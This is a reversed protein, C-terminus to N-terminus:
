RAKLYTDFWGFIEKLRRLRHRPKGSRSLSHNEGEFLCMRSPVGFYKMATFMQVGQDVTCNYDCLSHIFLIPTKANKAYKLPSQDWMKAADTWPDAGLEESDFTVGIESAGFDSVWNSISRQSALAAFRDTHGEIWNCMFGGYSGGAAGLRAPDIQPYLSLVHDTFEMLDRYDVTGYKGRLDGFAPGYGESGRPNCFFVAYGAGALAQMEHVFAPGYAGRPGGHIELVAPFRGGGSFGEPLLVWGDIRVGDSDTFPIYQAEAVRYTECFSKNAWTRQIAQGDELTYLEALRNDECGVLALRGQAADLWVACGTFGPVAQIKDAETLEYLGSRCGQQGIWYVKEGVAKLASGSGHLSDTVTGSGLACLGQAALRLEGSSLDYRYWDHFQGSGWTKMDTLALILTKDGLALGGVNWTNEPLLARTEGATRNYLCVQGYLSIRDKYECGSWAIWDGKADFSDVNFYESTLKKLTGTDASYLYLAARQRSIYGRGNGWFPIEELVHYDKEDEKLKEDMDKPPENLNEDVQLLYEKGGLPKIGSVDKAVEFAKQAEGGHINLRYFCTKKENKEEKDEEARRAPFLLADDADWVFDDEKGLFTMQRAEGTDNDILCIWSDYRNEKENQRTLGYATYRGDPSIQPNSVFSLEMLSEIGINKM